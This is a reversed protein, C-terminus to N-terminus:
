NFDCPIVMFAFQIAIAKSNADNREAMCNFPVNCPLYEIEKKLKLKLILCLCILLLAKFYHTFRKSCTNDM